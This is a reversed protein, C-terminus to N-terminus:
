AFEMLIPCITLWRQHSRLLSKSSTAISQMKREVDALCSEFVPSYEPWRQRVHLKSKSDNKLSELSFVERNSVKGTIRCRWSRFWSTNWSSCAGLVAKWFKRSSYENRLSSSRTTANTSADWSESTTPTSAYCGNCRASNTSTAIKGAWSRTRPSWAASRRNPTGGSRTICRRRCSAQLRCHCNFVSATLSDTM